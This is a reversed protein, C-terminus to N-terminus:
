KFLNAKKLQKESHFDSTGFSSCKGSRLRNYVYKWLFMKQNEMFSSIIAAMITKSNHFEQYDNKTMKTMIKVIKMM